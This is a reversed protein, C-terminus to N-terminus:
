PKVVYLNSKYHDNLHLLKANCLEIKEESDKYGDLKEFELKATYYTGEDYLACANCYKCEIILADSDMYGSLNSFVEIADDYHGQEQLELGYNYKTELMYEKLENIKDKSYQSNDVVKSIKEEASDYEHNTILEEIDKYKLGYM